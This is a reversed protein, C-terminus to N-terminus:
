EIDLGWTKALRKRIAKPITKPEMFSKGDLHDIEHEVCVAYIGHFVKTHEKGKEDLYLVEVWDHRSGTIVSEGPASLCGESLLSTVVSYRLVQPNVFNVRGEPGEMVFFRYGIGVQNAALGIGNAQRMTRYMNDMIVKLETGIDLVLDCVKFLIPNPFKLIKM